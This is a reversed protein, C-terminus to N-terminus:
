DDGGPTDLRMLIADVREGQRAYYGRRRGIEHFGARHYLVLAATNDAAVELSAGRRCYLNLYRELLARGVGQRRQAPDVTIQIVDGEGEVVWGIIFGAPGTGVEAMVGKLNPKELLAQAQAFSMGADIGAILVADDPVLPRLVTM